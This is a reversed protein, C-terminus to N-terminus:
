DDAERATTNTETKFHCQTSPVDIAGVLSAQATTNGEKEKVSRQLNWNCRTM